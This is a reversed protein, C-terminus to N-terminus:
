FDAKCVVTDSGPAKSKEASPQKRQKLLLLTVLPTCILVLLRTLGATVPVSSSGPDRSTTKLLPRHHPVDAPVMDKHVVAAKHSWGLAIHQINRGRIKGAGNDQM